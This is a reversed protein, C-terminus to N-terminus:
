WRRLVQLRQAAQAEIPQAHADLIEIGFHLLGNVAHLRQFHGAFQDGLARASPKSLM